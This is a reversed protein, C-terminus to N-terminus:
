EWGEADHLQVDLEMTPANYIAYLLQKRMVSESSYAPLKLISFCTQSQPLMDDGGKIVAIKFSIPPHPPAPIRSRACVFELLKGRDESSFGDVVRWFRRIVDGNVDVGEAYEAIEQLDRVEIEENGCILTKLETHTFLTIWQLPLVAGMGRVVLECDAWKQTLVARFVRQFWLSRPERDVWFLLKTKDLRNLPLVDIIESTSGFAALVEDWNTQMHVVGLDVNEIDNQNLPENAVSKFFITSLPLSVSIAGRIAVGLLVGWYFQFRRTNPPNDTDNHNILEFTEDNTLNNENNASKRALNLVYLPEFSVATEIMERYPGGSDYVGEGILRVFFSRKQGADEAHGFERRFSAVPVVEMSSIMQHLVSKTLIDSRSENNQQSRRAAIRNIKIEPVTLSTQVGDSLKMAHAATSTLIAQWLLKKSSFSLLSKFSLFLTSLSPLPSFVPSSQFFPANRWTLPTFPIFSPVSQNLLRLASGALGHRDGRCISKLIFSWDPENSNSSDSPTPSDLSHHSSENLDISENLNISENLDISENLNLSENLSQNQNVEGGKLIAKMENVNFYWYSDHNECQYWIQDFKTGVIRKMGNRGNMLQGIRVRNREKLVRDLREQSTDIEVRILGRALVTKVNRRKTEKIISEKVFSPLLEPNGVYMARMLHYAFRVQKLSGEADNGSEEVGKMCRLTVADGCRKFGISPFLPIVQLEGGNSHLNRAAVGFSLLSHHSYYLDKGQKFFSLEGHDMDLLVGIVDGKYFQVGYFYENAHDQFSRNSVFGYDRWCQHSSGALKGAVGIFLTGYDCNEVSVEWYVKGSTFGRSGLVMCRNNTTCRASLLDDSLEIGAACHAPSFTFLQSPFLEGAGSVTVMTNIEPSASIPPLEIARLLAVLSEDMSVARGFYSEIDIPNVPHTLENCNWLEVKWKGDNEIVVLDDPVGNRWIRHWKEGNQYEIMGYGHRKGNSWVQTWRVRNLVDLSSFYDTIEGDRFGRSELMDGSRYCTVAPFVGYKAAVASQRVNDFAVGLFLNNKYFSLEGRDMDIEVTITDGESYSPRPPGYPTGVNAHWKEGTPQFAWGTFDRGLYSTFKTGLSAIGVGMYQTSCRKISIDWAWTGTTIGQPIVATRQAPHLVAMAMGWQKVESKNLVLTSSPIDLISSHLSVHFGISTPPKMPSVHFPFTSQFSFTYPQSLSLVLRLHTIWNETLPNLSHIQTTRLIASYKEAEGAMEIATQEDLLLIEARYYDYAHYCRIQCEVSWDRSWNGSMWDAADFRWVGRWDFVLTESPQVLRFM